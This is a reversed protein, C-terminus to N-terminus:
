IYSSWSSKWCWYSISSNANINDDFVVNTNPNATVSGEIFRGNTQGNTNIVLQCGTNPFNNDWLYNLSIGGKFKFNPNSITSIGKTSTITNINYWIDANGGIVTNRLLLSSGANFDVRATSTISPTGSNFALLATIRVGSGFQVGGTLTFLGNGGSNLVGNDSVILVPSSPLIVEVNNATYTFGNPVNIQGALTISNLSNSPNGVSSFTFGNQYVIGSPTSPMTSNGGSTTISGTVTLQATTSLACGNITFGGPLTLQSNGTIAFAKNPQTCDFTPALPFTIANNSVIGDTFTIAGGLLNIFVSGTSLTTV